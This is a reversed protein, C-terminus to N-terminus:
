NKTCEISYCQSTCQRSRVNGFLFAQEVYGTTCRLCHWKAFRWPFELVVTLQERTCYLTLSIATSTATPM